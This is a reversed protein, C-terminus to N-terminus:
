LILVLSLINKRIVTFFYIMISRLCLEVNQFRLKYIYHFFWKLRKKWYYIIYFVVNNYPCIEVRFYNNQQNKCTFSWSRWHMADFVLQSNCYWLFSQILTHQKWYMFSSIFGSFFTGVHKTFCIFFSYRGKTDKKM